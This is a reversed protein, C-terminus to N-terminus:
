SVELIRKGTKCGGAALEREVLSCCRDCWLTNEYCQLDIRLSVTWNEGATLTLGALIAGELALDGLEFKPEVRSTRHNNRVQSRETIREVEGHKPRNKNKVEKHQERQGHLLPQCVHPLVLIQGAVAALPRVFLM